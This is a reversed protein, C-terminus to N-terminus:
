AGGIGSGACATGHLSDFDFVALVSGDRVVDWAGSWETQGGPESTVQVVADSQLIGPINVTIFGAGGPQDLMNGTPAVPVRDQSPCALAEEPTRAVDLRSGRCMTLQLSRIVVLRGVVVGDRVVVYTPVKFSTSAYGPKVVLDDARLGRLYPAFATAAAAPDLEWFDGIVAVRGHVDGDACTTDWPVWYGSPDVV